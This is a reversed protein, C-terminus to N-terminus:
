CRAIAALSRQVPDVNERRTVAAVILLFSVDPFHAQTFFFRNRLVEAPSECVLTRGTKLNEDQSTGQPFHIKNNVGGASRTNVASASRGALRARSRAPYNPRTAEPCNAGSRKALKQTKTRRDTVLNSLTRPRAPCYACWPKVLRLTATRRSAQFLFYSFPMERSVLTLKSRKYIAIVLPPEGGPASARRVTIRM